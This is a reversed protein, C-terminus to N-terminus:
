ESDPASIGEHNPYGLKHSRWRPDVKIELSHYDDNTSKIYNELLDRHKNLVQRYKGNGALNEMEGPDNIMDYLEEGNGEIYNTYKFKLTRIMRGPEITFGWETHWESAVYEHTKKMKEGKLIPALSIGQKYAPSAIGSLECLTPLLDITPSILINKIADEQHKIGKGSVIFPVKTMEDYFSVQKTVMRHSTMGDGHDSLLIIITNENASTSKLATWVKTIDDDVLKCYYNYAALYHRYNTKNWHSAQMMRRHSCCIYQIPLPLSEWNKVEFNDPLEPLDFPLPKDEHAGANEGVYGCINHPNTFDVVCIFPKEPPNELFKVADNCTGRDIFSDGNLPFLPNYFIEPKSEIQKFGRLAGRDHTKGFHITEYGAESFLQGLTVVTDPVLPDFYKLGNSRVNAQHPMLGTWLAARSPQCLPCGIYSNTFRIGQKAILDITPTVKSQTNGYAGIVRQTLQDCQIILINPRQQQQGVATQLTFGTAIVSTFFFTTKM